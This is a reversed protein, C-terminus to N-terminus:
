LVMVTPFNGVLLFCDSLAMVTLFGSDLRMIIHAEFIKPFFLGLLACVDHRLVLLIFRYVVLNFVGLLICVSFVVM